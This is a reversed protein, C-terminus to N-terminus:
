GYGGNRVREFAELVVGKVARMKYPATPRGPISKAVAQEALEAAAAALANFDSGSPELLPVRLPQRGVAGLVLSIKKMAGEAEGKIVLAASIRAIALANRRGLKVFTGKVQGGPLAPIRVERILVGRNGGASKKGLFSELSSIAAGNVGETVIEADHAVLAPLSDGAPSGTAINGGMTGRARIQPSGIDEAAAALAPAFRRVLASSAIRSFSLAAGLYLYGNKEELVSLERLRAVDILVDPKASGRKMELVLDTGGALFTGKGRSQEFVEVAAEITDPRVYRIAEPIM